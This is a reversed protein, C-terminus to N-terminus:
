VGGLLAIVIGIISAIMSLAALALSLLTIPELQNPEM